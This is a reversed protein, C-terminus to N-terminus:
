GHQDGTVLLSAFGRATRGGFGRSTMARIHQSFATRHGRHIFSEVINNIIM